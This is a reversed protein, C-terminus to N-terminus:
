GYSPDEDQQRQPPASSKLRREITDIDGIGLLDAVEVIRAGPVHVVKARGGMERLTPRSDSVGLVSLARGLTGLSPTYSTRALVSWRQHLREVSVLAEGRAFVVAVEGRQLNGADGNAARALAVLVDQQVGGRMGARRIWKDAEGDVAFRSGRKVKRTAALHAIHRPLKGPSGDPADVWDRTTARGGIERLHESVEHSVDIHLIREGIAAEDEPGLDERIKLADGNNASVILRVCGRLTAAPKYKETLARESEAVLSRFAGSDVDVRGASEDLLVIPCHRLASSYSGMIDAYNTRDRGWLRAVGSAFLGKGAGKRGELYLAATPWTLDSVTALWDLLRDAREGGLLRLWQDVEASFAPQVPVPPACAIVLDGAGPATRDFRTVTATLDYILRDVRWAYRRILEPPPIPKDGDKTTRWLAVGHRWRELEAHLLRENTPVYSTDTACWLARSEAHMLVLARSPRDADAHSGGDGTASLHAEWDGENM